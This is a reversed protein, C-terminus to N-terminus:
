ITCCSGKFSRARSKGSVALKCSSSLAFPLLACGHGFLGDRWAVPFFVGAEAKGVRLVPWPAVWAKARRWPVTGQRMLLM